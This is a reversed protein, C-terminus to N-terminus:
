AHRDEQHTDQVHQSSSSHSPSGQVLMSQPTTMTVALEEGFRIAYNQGRDEPYIQAMSALYLNPISTQVPPMGAGYNLGVVPQAYRERFVHAKHVSTKSFKPFVKELGALFQALIEEDTKSFLPNEADLYRSLYVVHAGYPKNRIMNTHEIVLVFPVSEDAITMWYYPSLSEPLELLVCLNAKYRSAECRSRDDASLHEGAVAVLQDPAGTFFVKDFRITDRAATPAEGRNDCATVQADISGDELPSLGTVECGFRIEGGHTTIDELLAQYLRGFSGDLYGFAESSVGKARTSGRLKFKNWIWVASVEDADKDFKARLLPGWLTEYVKRGAHREIWERARVSEMGQWDKIFRARLVLLGLSIRNFFSLERFRILDMPSSFPAIRGNMYIGSKPSNWALHPSLGADEILQLIHRDSTFIHHYIKELTEDGVTLTGALGGLDPRKELVTVEHGMRALRYAAALGTAGAGIIGIRM